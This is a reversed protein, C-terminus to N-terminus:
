SVYRPKPLGIQEMLKPVAIQRIKSLKILNELREVSMQETRQNLSILEAHEETTLMEDLSREILYEYRVQTEVPLAQNIKELLKTEQASVTPAQRRFRLRLLEQILHVLDYTTLQEAAQMVDTISPSITTNSVTM